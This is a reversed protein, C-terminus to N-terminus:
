SLILKLITYVTKLRTPHDGIVVKIIIFICHEIPESTGNLFGVYFKLADLSIISSSHCPCHYVQRVLYIICYNPFHCLIIGIGQTQGTNGNALKVTDKTPFFM